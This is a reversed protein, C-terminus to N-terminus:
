TEDEDNSENGFLVGTHIDTERMDELYIEYFIGNKTVIHVHIGLYDDGDGEGEGCAYMEDVSIQKIQTGEDEIKQLIPKVRSTDYYQWKTPKLTTLKKIIEEM